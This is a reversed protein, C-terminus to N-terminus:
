TRPEHSSMLAPWSPAPMHALRCATSGLPAHHHMHTSVTCARPPADQSRQQQALPEPRCFSAATTRHCGRWRHSDGHGAATHHCLVWHPLRHSAHPHRSAGRGTHCTHMHTIRCRRAHSADELLLQLQQQGGMRDGRMRAAWAGPQRHNYQVDDPTGATHADHTPAGM